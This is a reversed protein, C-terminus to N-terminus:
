KRTKKSAAKKMAALEDASYEKVEPDYGPYAGELYLKVLGAHSLPTRLDCVDCNTEYDLFAVDQTEAIKNLGELMTMVQPVNELVCRYAPVYIKM